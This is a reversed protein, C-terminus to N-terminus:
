EKVESLLTPKEQECEFLGFELWEIMNEFTHRESLHGRQEAIEFCDYINCFYCEKFYFVEM